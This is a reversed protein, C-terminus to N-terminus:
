FSMLEREVEADLDKQALGPIVETMVWQVARNYFDDFAAQDMKAFSISAPWRVPGRPTQCVEVHGIALKCVNLLEDKSYHDQNEFVVKMMAFFKRHHGINRPETVTIKVTKGQKKAIFARGEDCVPRLAGMQAIAFFEAM